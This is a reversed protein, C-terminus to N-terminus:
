ENHESNYQVYLYLDCKEYHKRNAFLEDLFDETPNNHVTKIKNKWASWTTVGPLCQELQKPTYGSVNDVPRTVNTSNQNRTDIMDFGCSTYYGMAITSQ